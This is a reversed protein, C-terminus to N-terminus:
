VDEASGSPAAPPYNTPPSEVAGGSPPAPAPNVAGASGVPPLPPPNFAVAVAGGSPPRPATNPLSAMGTPAVPAPDLVAAGDPPVPPFNISTTDCDCLYGVTALALTM